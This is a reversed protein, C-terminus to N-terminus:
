YSSNSTNNKQRVGKAVPIGGTGRSNTVQFVLTIGSGLEKEM